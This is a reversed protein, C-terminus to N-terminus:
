VGPGEFWEPLDGAGYFKGRPPLPGRAAATKVKKEVPGRILRLLDGGSMFNSRPIGLFTGGGEHAVLNFAPNDFPTSMHKADYHAGVAEDGKHHKNWIKAALTKADEDSM